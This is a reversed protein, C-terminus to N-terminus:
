KLISRLQEVLKQEAAEQDAFDEDNIVSEARAKLATEVADGHSKLIVLGEPSNALLLMLLCTGERLDTDASTIFSLCNPVLCRGILSIRSSSTNDSGLLAKSLFIIRRLLIPELPQMGFAGNIFAVYREQQTLWVEAEAHGRVVCSIAMTIKAKLACPKTTDEHYIRLLQEATGQKWMEEQVEINNQAIAGIIAAAESRNEWNLKESRLLCLIVTLGGFKAFVKAMDIQDIISHLDELLFEIEEESDGEEGADIIETFRKIIETLRTPDDRVAEAMVRTLFAKDEESMPQAESPSTGDSQALSWKLLGLWNGYQSM